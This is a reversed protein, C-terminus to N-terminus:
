SELLTLLPSLCFFSCHVFFFSYMVSQTAQILPANLEELEQDFRKQEKEEMKERRSAQKKTEEKAKVDVFKSKKKRIGHFDLFYSVTDCITAGLQILIDYL